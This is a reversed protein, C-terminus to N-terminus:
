DAVNLGILQMLPRLTTYTEEYSDSVESPGSLIGLGYSDSMWDEMLLLLADQEEENLTVITTRGFSIAKAM